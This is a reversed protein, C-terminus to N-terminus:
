KAGALGHIKPVEGIEAFGGRDTAIFWAEFEKLFREVDIGDRAPAFPRLLAMAGGYMTEAGGRNGRGAHFCCVAAKVLGQYFAREPGPTDRWVDEWVEHADHFERRNFLEVGQAIRPDVPGAPERNM